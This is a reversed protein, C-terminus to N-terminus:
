VQREFEIIYLKNTDTQLVINTIFSYGLALRDAESTVVAIGGGSFPINTWTSTTSDYQLIDEDALGSLVVDAIDSIGAGSSIVGSTARLIGNLNDLTLASMVASAAAFSTIIASTAALASASAADVSITGFVVNANDGLKNTALKQLAQRTSVIDRDKISPIRSM